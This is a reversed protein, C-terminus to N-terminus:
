TGAAKTKRAWKMVEEPVEEGDLILYHGVGDGLGIGFAEFCSSCMNGWHSGFPSSAKTVADYRALPVTEDDWAVSLNQAHTDCEPLRHVKATLSM